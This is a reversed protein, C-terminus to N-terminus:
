QGAIGSKDIGEIFWKQCVAYVLILPAISLLTGAFLVGENFLEGLSGVTVTKGFSQEYQQRFSQLGSALTHYKKPFYLTILSTENFYWVFSYLFCILFATLTLPVAITLFIRFEGAGDIEASEFLEKPLVRFFQYFILILLSQRIGYGSLAPIIYAWLSDTLHLTRYLVVTPLSTLITPVLFAFIILVLIVKKGKFEYVGLGYGVFASIIVSILSPIVSVILSDGLAKFYDLAKFAKSYNQFYLASPIWNRQSDTLDELSMLSMSLMRLIPYLYIFSIGILILYLFIKYLIGDGRFLRKFFRSRKKKSTVEEM